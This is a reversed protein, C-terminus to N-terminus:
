NREVFFRVRLRYPYRYKVIPFLRPQAELKKFFEIFRKLKRPAIRFGTRFDVFPNPSM